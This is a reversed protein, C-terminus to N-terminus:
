RFIFVLLPPIKINTGSDIQEFTAPFYRFKIGFVHSCTFM